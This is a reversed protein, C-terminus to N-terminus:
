EFLDKYKEKLLKNRKVAIEMLQEKTKTKNSVIKHKLIEDLKEKHIQLNKNNEDSIEKLKKNDKIQNKYSRAIEAITEIDQKLIEIELLDISSDETKQNLEEMLKLLKNSIGAYQDLSINNNDNKLDSLTTVTRSKSM